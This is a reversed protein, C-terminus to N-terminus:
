WCGRALGRDGSQRMVLEYRVNIKEKTSMVMVLYRNKWLQHWGITTGCIQNGGV